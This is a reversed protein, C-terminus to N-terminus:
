EYYPDEKDEKCNGVFRLGGSDFKLCKEKPNKLGHEGFRTFEMEDTYLEKKDPRFTKPLTCMYMDYSYDGMVQLCKGTLKNKLMKGEWLWTQADSGAVCKGHYELKSKDYPPVGICINEKANRLMVSDAADWVGGFVILAWVVWM